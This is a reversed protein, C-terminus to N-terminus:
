PTASSRSGCGARPTSRWARRTATATAGCTTASRTTPRSPATRTSGCSRAPSTTSPGARLRREPRRRDRRLAQRGPRVAAPRRQPVQQAPHRQAAGARTATDLAGNELRIRVIRNDTPSTHMIYLWRDTAFTPSLALGLLGGEGDTSQVNPVTGVTTKAGTAPDLRIIDHADRRGYLVTGDPLTCWAGRSTPTPPSRPSPASRRQACAAGTTVTVARERRRTARRTAPSCTTRTPPTRPWAATSSRRRRAARRHGHGVKAGGRFVDYARVGVNDTSATWSLTM